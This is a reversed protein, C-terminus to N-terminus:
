RGMKRSSRTSPRMKAGMALVTHRGEEPASMKEM